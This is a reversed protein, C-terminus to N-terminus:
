MRIALRVKVLPRVGHALLVGPLDLVLTAVANHTFPYLGAVLSTFFIM